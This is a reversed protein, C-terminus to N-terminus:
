ILEKRRMILLKRAKEVSREQSNFYAALIADVLESRSAQLDRSSEAVSDLEKIIEEDIAFGVKIKAGKM